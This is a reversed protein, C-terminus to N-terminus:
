SVTKTMSSTTRLAFMSVKTQVILKLKSLVTLTTTATIAVPTMASITLRWPLVLLKGAIIIAITIVLLTPSTINSRSLASPTIFVMAIMCRAAITVLLVTATKLLEM